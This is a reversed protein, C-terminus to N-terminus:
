MTLNLSFKLCPPFLVVVINSQINTVVPLDDSVGFIRPMNRIKVSKSLNQHPHRNVPQSSCGTWCLLLKDASSTHTSNLLLMNKLTRLYNIFINDIFYYRNDVNVISQTPRSHRQLLELYREFILEWTVNGQFIGPHRETKATKITELSM